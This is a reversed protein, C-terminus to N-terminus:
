SDNSDEEKERCGKLRKELRVRIAGLRELLRPDGGGATKGRIVRKKKKL